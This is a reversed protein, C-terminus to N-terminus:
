SLNHTMRTFSNMNLYVVFMSLLARAKRPAIDNAQHKSTVSKVLKVLM